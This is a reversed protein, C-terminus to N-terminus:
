MEAFPDHQKANLDNSHAWTITLFSLSQYKNSGPNTIENRLFYWSFVDDHDLYTDSANVPLGKKLRAKTKAREQEEKALQEDRQAELIEPM